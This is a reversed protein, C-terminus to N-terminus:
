LPWGCRSWSGPSVPSWKRRRGPFRSPRLSQLPQHGRPVIRLRHDGVARRPSSVGVAISALLDAPLKASLSNAPRYTPSSALRGASRSRNDAATATLGEDISRSRERRLLILCLQAEGGSREQLILNRCDSRPTESRNTAREAESPSAALAAGQRTVGGRGLSVVSLLFNESSAVSSRASGIARDATFGSDSGSSTRVYCSRQRPKGKRPGSGSRPDGPGTRFLRNM